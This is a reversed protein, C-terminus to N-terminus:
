MLGVFRHLGESSEILEKDVDLRQDVEMKFKHVCIIYTNWRRPVRVVHPYTHVSFNSRIQCRAVVATEYKRLQGTPCTSGWSQTPMNIRYAGHFIGGNDYVGDLYETIGNAELLFIPQGPFQTKRLRIERQIEQDRRKDVFGNKKLQALVQVAHANRFNSKASDIPNEIAYRLQDGGTINTVNERWFGERSKHAAKWAAKNPFNDPPVLNSNGSSEIQYTPRLNTDHTFFRTMSLEEWDMVGNGPAAASFGSGDNSEDYAEAKVQLLPFYEEFFEQPPLKRSDYVKRINEQTRLEM